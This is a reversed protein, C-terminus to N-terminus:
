KNYGYVYYTGTMNTSATFFTMSDFASAVAHQSYVTGSEAATSSWTNYLTTITTRKALNPELVDMIMTGNLDGVLGFAASTQGVLYNRSPGSANSSYVFNGNYNASTNDTGAARMRLFTGAGNTATGTGLIIIRYNDYATTFTNVPM